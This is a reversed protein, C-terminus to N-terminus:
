NKAPISGKIEGVTKQAEEKRMGCEKVLKEMIKKSDGRRFDGGRSINIFSALKKLFHIFWAREETVHRERPAHWQQKLFELVLTRSQERKAQIREGYEAINDASIATICAHGICDIKFDRLTDENQQWWAEMDPGQGELGTVIVAIPVKRDCLFDHFLTYNSRVTASVRNGRICFLLLDIGGASRLQRILNLAKDIASIYGPTGLEPENLGVTDFLRLQMAGIELKYEQSQLTCGRANGNTHAIKEGAILNIVSSKGVGAEGFLVVNTLRTNPTSSSDIQRILNEADRPDIGCRQTLIVIPKSPRHLISRTDLSCSMKVPGEATTSKLLLQILVDKSNYHLGDEQYVDGPLASICAHGVFHLDEKELAAKNREWWADENKEKEQHTVVLAIRASGLLFFEDFLRYINRLANTPKATRACLLILDVGRDLSRLLDSAQKFPKVREADGILPPSFGMTDYIRFQKSEFTVDYPTANQTCGSVDSSVRADLHGTLLNIISSKGSGIEGALVINFPRGASM